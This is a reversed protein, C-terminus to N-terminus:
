NLTRKIPWEGHSAVMDLLHHAMKADITSGVTPSGSTAAVIVVGVADLDLLDPGFQNILDRVKM